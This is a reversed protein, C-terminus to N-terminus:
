PTEGGQAADPEAQPEPEPEPEPEANKKRSRKPAATANAADMAEALTAFVGRGAVAYPPM